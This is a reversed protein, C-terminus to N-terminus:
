FYDEGSMASVPVSDKLDNNQKETVSQNERMIDEASEGLAQVETQVEQMKETTNIGVTELGKRIGERIGERLVKLFQELTLEGVPTNEDIEEEEMDGVFAM